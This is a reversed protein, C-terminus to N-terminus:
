APNVDTRGSQPVAGCHSGYIQCLRSWSRFPRMSRRELGNLRSGIRCARLAFSIMTSVRRLANRMLAPRIMAVPNALWSDSLLLNLLGGIRVLHCNAQRVARQFQDAVAASLWRRNGEPVIRRRHRAKRWEVVDRGEGVYLTDRSGHIALGCGQHIIGTKERRPRIARIIEHLDIQRLEGCAHFSIRDDRRCRALAGARLGHLIEAGAAALRPDLFRAGSAAARSLARSGPRCMGNRGLWRGAM